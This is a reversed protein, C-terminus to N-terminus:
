SGPGAGFSMGLLMSGPEQLFSLGLVFLPLILGAEGDSRSASKKLLLPTSKRPLDLCCIKEPSSLRAATAIAYIIGTM